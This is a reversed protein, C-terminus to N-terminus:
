LSMGSSGVPGPETSEGRVEQTWINHILDICVQSPLTISCMIHTLMTCTLPDRINISLKYQRKIFFANKIRLKFIPLGLEEGWIRVPRARQQTPQRRTQQRHDLIFRLHFLRVLVVHLTMITQLPPINQGETRRNEGAQKLMAQGQM